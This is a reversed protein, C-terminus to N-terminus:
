FGFGKEPIIDAYPDATLTIMKEYYYRDIDCEFGGCVSNLCKKHEESFHEQGMQQAKDVLHKFPQSDLMTVIDTEKQTLSGESGDMAAIERLDYIVDTEEDGPYRIVHYNYACMGMDFYDQIDKRIEEENDDFFKDQYSLTFWHNKEIDAMDFEVHYVVDMTIPRVDYPEDSDKSLFIPLMIEWHIKITRIRLMDNHDDFVLPIGYLRSRGKKLGIQRIGKNYYPKRVLYKAGDLGFPTMDIENDDQDYLRVSGEVDYIIRQDWFDPVLWLVYQKTDDFDPVLKRIMGRFLELEPEPDAFNFRM